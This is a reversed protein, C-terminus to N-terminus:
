ATERAVIGKGDFSSRKIRAVEVKGAPLHYARIIKVREANRQNLTAIEDSRVHVRARGYNGDDVFRHGSAVPGVLIWESPADCQSQRLRSIGPDGNNTDGFIQRM